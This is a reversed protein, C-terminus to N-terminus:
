ECRGCTCAPREGNRVAGVLREVREHIRQGTQPSYRVSIVKIAGTDRALYVVQTLARELYHMYAQVQWYLRGPLKGQSPIWEERPLTKIELVDTRAIVGDTHGQVLGDHLMIEESPGYIGIDTLRYILETELEYALRTLLHEDVRARQGFIVRNYIKSECDGIGSLGIYARQPEHGSHQVTWNMLATQLNKPQM